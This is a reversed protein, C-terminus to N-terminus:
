VSLINSMFKQRLNSSSASWVLLFSPEAPMLEVKLEFDRGGSGYSCVNELFRCHSIVHRSVEKAASCNDEGEVRCSM